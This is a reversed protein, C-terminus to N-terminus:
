KVQTGGENEQMQCPHIEDITSSEFSYVILDTLLSSRNQVNKVERMTEPDNASKILHSELGEPLNNSYIIFLLLGLPSGQPVSSSATIWYFLHRM